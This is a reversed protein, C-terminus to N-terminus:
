IQMSNLNKTKVIKKLISRLINSIVAAARILVLGCFGLKRVSKGGQLLYPYTLSEMSTFIRVFIFNIPFKSKQYLPCNLTPDNRKLDIVEKDEIVDAAWPSTIADIASDAFGELDGDFIAEAASFADSAGGILNTFAEGGVDLVDSLAGLGEGDLFDAVADVGREVGEALDDLGASISGFLDAIAGGILGALEQVANWAAAVADKLGEWVASIAAYVAKLAAVVAKGIEKVWEATEWNAYFELDWDADLFSLSDLDRHSNAISSNSQQLARAEKATYTFEGVKASARVGMIVTGIGVNAELEANFKAEWNDGILTFGTEIRVGAIFLVTVKAEINIQIAFEDEREPIQVIFELKAENLM